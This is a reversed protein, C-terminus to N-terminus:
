EPRWQPLRVAAGDDAVRDEWYPVVRLGIHVDDLPTEPMNGVVRLHAADDLAVLVVAYPVAGVLAPNTPYHVVTYSHVTGNPALTKTGFETGLCAHCIEEPPHQLAACSACQQVALAGSTFWAANVPTIEPLGWDTPIAGM